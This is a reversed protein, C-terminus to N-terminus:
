LRLQTCLASALGPRRASGRRYRIRDIISELWEASNDGLNWQRRLNDQRGESSDSSATARNLSAPPCMDAKPDFRAHRNEMTIDAKNM